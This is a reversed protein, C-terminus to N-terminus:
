INENIIWYRDILQELEKVTQELEIELEKKDELLVQKDIKFGQYEMETTALLMEMQNEVLNRFIKGRATILQQQKIYIDWTDKVDKNVDELVCHVPLDSVDQYDNMMVPKFLLDDLWKRRYECGYKEVALERLSTWRDKYNSIYYQALQPCFIKGGKQLWRQFKEYGWSYLCEFKANFAIIVDYQILLDIMLKRDEETYCYNTIQRDKDKISYAVIKNHKFNATRGFVEKSTTEYDLCCIKNM